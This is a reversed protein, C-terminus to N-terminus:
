VFPRFVLRFFTMNKLGCLVLFNKRVPMVVFVDADLDCLAESKGFFKGWLSFHVDYNLCTFAFERLSM